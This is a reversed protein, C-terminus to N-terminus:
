RQYRGSGRAWLKMASPPRLRHEPRAQFLKASRAAKKLPGTSNSRKWAGGGRKQARVFQIASNVRSNIVTEPLFKDLTGHEAQFKEAEERVWDELKGRIIDTEAETFGKLSQVKATAMEHADLLVAGMDEAIRPPAPVSKGAPPIKSIAETTLPAAVEIGVSPAKATKGLAQSTREIFPVLPAPKALPKAIHGGITPAIVASAAAGVASRTGAVVDGAKFAEEATVIQEPLGKAAEYGFYAAGATAGAKALKFGARAATGLGMTALGLPSTLGGALDKAAADVGAVIDATKDNLFPYASKVEERTLGEPITFGPQNLSEWAAKAGAVNPSDVPEAYASDPVTPGYADDPVQLGYAEDPVTLGYAEDPVTLTEPM